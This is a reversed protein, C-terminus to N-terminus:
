VTAFDEFCLTNSSLSCSKTIDSYWLSSHFTSCFFKKKILNLIPLNKCIAISLFTQKKLYIQHCAYSILELLAKEEGEKYAFYRIYSQQVAEGIAPAKSIGFVPKFIKLLQLLLKVSVPAKLVINQKLKMTDMIRISAIVENGDMIYYDMEYIPDILEPKNAIQFPKLYTEYFGLLKSHEQSNSQKVSSHIQKNKKALIQLVEFQAISKFPFLGLKGKLIPEVLTNGAAVTAFLYQANNEKLYIKTANLLKYLAVGNTNHKFKLDSIIHAKTLVGKIFYAKESVSICGIIDKSSELIFTISKGRKNLLAFFNPKRDIRLHFNGKMPLSESLNQLLLSDNYESTRIKAM